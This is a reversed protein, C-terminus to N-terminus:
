KSLTKTPKIQVRLTGEGGTVGLKKLFAIARDVDSFVRYQAGGRETRFQKSLAFTEKGNDFYIRFRGKDRGYVVESIEFRFRGVRSRLVTQANQSDVFEVGNREDSITLNKKM